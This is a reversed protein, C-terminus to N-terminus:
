RLIRRHAEVGRALKGLQLLAFTAKKREAAASGGTTSTVQVPRTPKMIEPGKGRSTDKRKEHLPQDLGTIHVVDPGQAKEQTVTATTLTEKTQDGEHKEGAKKKWGEKEKEPSFKYLTRMKSQKGIVPVEETKQALKVGAAATERSRKRSVLQAVHDEEEEKEEEEYDELNSQRFRLTGEEFASTTARSSGGKKSIPEPDITIVKKKTTPPKKKKEESDIGLDRLVGAFINSWSSLGGNSSGVSEESSLYVVEKGASTVGRLPPPPLYIRVKLLLLHIPSLELQPICFIVKSGNTDSSSALRWRACAWRGVLPPSLLEGRDQFKLVPVEHSDEPWQDSM